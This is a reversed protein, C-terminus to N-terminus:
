ERKTERGERGKGEGGRGEGGRGEEEREEEGRGEEGAERHKLDVGDREKSERIQKKYRLM